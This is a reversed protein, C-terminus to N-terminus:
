TGALVRYDTSVSMNFPTAFTAWRELIPMLAGVAAQAEPALEKERPFLHDRVEASAFEIMYLYEGIRNGRDGKLVAIKQGAFTLGQIEAKVFDEFAEPSVGPHLVLPHIGFVKAM